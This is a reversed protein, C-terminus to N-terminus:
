RKKNIVIHIFGIKEYDKNKNLARVDFPNKLNYIYYLNNDINYVVYKHNGFIIIDNKKVM